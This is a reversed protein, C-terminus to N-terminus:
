APRVPIARAAEGLEDLRSATRGFSLSVRTGRGVESRVEVRDSLSTMLPTGMGLGRTEDYPTV